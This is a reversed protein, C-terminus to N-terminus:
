VPSPTDVIATQPTSTRQAEGANLAARLGLVNGNVRQLIAEVCGNWGAGFLPGIFSETMRFAEIMGAFTEWMEISVSTRLGANEAELMRNREWRDRMAAELGAITANHQDIVLQRDTIRANAAELDARLRSITAKYEREDKLANQFMSANRKDLEALQGQLTRITDLLERAIRHGRFSSDEAAYEVAEKLREEMEPPLAHTNPPHADECADCYEPPQPLATAALYARRNWRETAQSMEYLSCIMVDCSNCAVYFGGSHRYSRPAQGCFPCALLEERPTLENPEIM